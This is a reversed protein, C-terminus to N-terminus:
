NRNKQFHELRQTYTIAKSRGQQPKTKNIQSVVLIDVAISFNMQQFITIYTLVVVIFKLTYDLLLIIGFEKMRTAYIFHYNALPLM